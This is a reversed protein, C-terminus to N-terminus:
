AISLRNESTSRENSGLLGARLCGMEQDRAKKRPVTEHFPIAAALDKVPLNLYNCQYRSVRELAAKM